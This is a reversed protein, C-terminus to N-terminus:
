QTDTGSEVVDDEPHGVYRYGVGRVSEISMRCGVSELKRRVYGVYVDILNTGRDFTNGWVDRHIEDRTLVLGRRSVFYSLLEYERGSLAITKGGCFCEHRHADIRLPGDCVSVKSSHTQSRRLLAHIRALLEDFVFPKSLYDDAGSRLGAVRDEIADLATLMLIPIAPNHLRIRHSVELGSIDPLRIDLLVCDPPSEVAIEVGAHGRTVWQVWFGEEELGRRVFEAVRPEDEVLLIRIIRSSVPQGVTATVPVAVVCNLICTFHM